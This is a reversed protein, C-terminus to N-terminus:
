PKSILPLQSTTANQSLLAVMYIHRFMESKGARFPMMSRRISRELDSYDANILDIQIDSFGFTSRDIVDEPVGEKFHEALVLPDMDEFHKMRDRIRKARHKHNRKAAKLEDAHRKKITTMSADRDADQKAMAIDSQTAIAELIDKNQGTIVERGKTANPSHGM